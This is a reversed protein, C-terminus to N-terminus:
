VGADEPGCLGYKEINSRRDSQRVRAGKEERWWTGRQWVLAANM